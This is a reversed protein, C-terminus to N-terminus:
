DVEPDSVLTTHRQVLSQNNALNTVAEGRTGRGQNGVVLDRSTAEAWAICPDVQRMQSARSAWGGWEVFGGNRLMIIPGM